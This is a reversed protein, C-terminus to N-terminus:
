SRLWKLWGDSLESFGRSKLVRGLKLRWAWPPDFDTLDLAGSVACQTRIWDRPYYCSGEFDILSVTGLEPEEEVIINTPGIDGHQFVLDSCDMGVAACTQELDESLIERSLTLGGLGYKLLYGSPFLGGDFGGIKSGKWKAMEEIIDAVANAYEDRKEESLTAWAVNLTRGHIRRLFLFSRDDYWSHCIVKPTKFSPCQRQIFALTDSELTQCPLPAKVKCMMSSGISWVASTYCAQYVVRVFSSNIEATKHLRPDTKQLSYTSGDQEDIWAYDGAGYAASCASESETRRILIDGVLWSNPDIQRFVKTIHDEGLRYRGPM